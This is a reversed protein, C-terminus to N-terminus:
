FGRQRLLRLAKQEETEEEYYLEVTAGEGAADQIVELAETAMKRTGALKWLTMRGEHVLRPHNQLVLDFPDGGQIQFTWVKLLPPLDSKHQSEEEM